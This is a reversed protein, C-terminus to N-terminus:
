FYSGLLPRGIALHQLVHVQQTPHFEDERVVIKNIRMIGIEKERGEKDQNLGYMATVHANKRKDENFNTMDLSNQKYSKSDAQTPVVWLANTEQSAARLGKWKHDEQHRFEGKIEHLLLDGYDVLVLDPKFGEKEWQRLIKRMMSVTLTGNAHTSLRVNGKAREFFKKWRRKAQKKTLPADIHIKEIWPTGWKHKGWEACNHCAKYTPNNELSEKLMDMTVGERDGLEEGYLGFDCERVRKTCTDKQNHICDMVPIYRDGCFKEKNSRKALYIGIRIIQQAETMDGAQFFAVKKKQLYARMMFELLMFTKGRKEPALIAVLGGRVMESNWFEGLAGPFTLVSQFTEDFAADVKELAEDSSLDLGSNELKEKLEFADILKTAEDLEGRGLADQLEEIHLEIQREKFFKRAADVLFTTDDTDESDDYETSLGALVNEIYEAIEKSLKKAKIKSLYINEIDFMPAKGYQEFYEWCWECILTGGQSEIYDPNWEGEISELFETSTIIALIIKREIGLEM